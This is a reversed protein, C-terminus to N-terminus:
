RTLPIDVIKSPNKWGPFIFAFTGALYGLGYSFHLVFFVVPLFCLLYPGKKLAIRTSLLLCVIAYIAPLIFPLHDLNELLIVSAGAVALLLVFLAPVLQRWTLISGIKRAVLPKFYGYQYYMKWLKLLSDRAHYYSVIDPSLLIKGNNKILRFNFEDDQNRLLEEDFYGIEDFVEKRYCGFPVTDVFRPITSGIRFYSNGIGFPHSLGIAIAQAIPSHNAPITVLIGGVCDAVNKEMQAVNAKIYSKEIRSHSSLIAIYRGKAKRIGMNLAVPTSKRSNDLVSICANRRSYIQLLKRTGDESMGDVVIIELENKPFENALISDLCSSIHRVENRCPIVFSIIPSHRESMSANKAADPNRNASM